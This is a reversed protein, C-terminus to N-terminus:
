ATDNANQIPYVYIQRSWMKFVSFQLLKYHSKPVSRRRKTEVFYKTFLLYYRPLPPSCWRSAIVLVPRNLRARRSEDWCSAVRMQEHACAGAASISRCSTRPVLLASLMLGVPFRQQQRDVPCVSSCVSGAGCVISAADTLNILLWLFNYKHSIAHRLQWLRQAVKFIM